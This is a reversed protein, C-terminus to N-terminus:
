SYQASPARTCCKDACCVIQGASEAVGAPL